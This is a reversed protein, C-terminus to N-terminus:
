EQNKKNRKKRRNVIILLLLLLAALILAVLILFDPCGKLLGGQGDVSILLKAAGDAEPKIFTDDYVESTIKGVLIDRGNTTSASCTSLLIINDEITVAIDRRYIAKTFLDELYLQRAEEGQINATYLEGDYADAHLFSFFEIGHDKGSFYLNGYRHSNFFDRNKFSGIDGFM